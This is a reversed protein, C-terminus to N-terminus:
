ESTEEKEIPTQLCEIRKLVRRLDERISVVEPTLPPLYSLASAVGDYAFGVHYDEISRQTSM